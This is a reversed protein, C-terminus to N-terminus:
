NLLSAPQLLRREQSDVTVNVVASKTADSKLSVKVTYTGSANPATYKGGESITGAGVGQVSWEIPQSTGDLIGTLQIAENPKILVISPEIKIGKFITSGSSSGSGGCGLLLFCIAFLAVLFRM